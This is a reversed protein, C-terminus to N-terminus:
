RRPRRRRMGLRIMRSALTNPHIGLRLAAGRPGSLLGGSLELARTIARRQADDLTLPAPWEPTTDSTRESARAAHTRALAQVAANTSYQKGLADLRKELDKAMKELEAATYKPPKGSNAAVPLNKIMEAYLKM